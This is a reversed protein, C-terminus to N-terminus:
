YVSLSVVELPLKLQKFGSYYMILLVPVFLEDNM